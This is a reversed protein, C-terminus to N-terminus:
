CLALLLELCHRLVYGTGYKLLFSSLLHVIVGLLGTDFTFALFRNQMCVVRFDGRSTSSHARSIVSGFTCTCFGETDPM